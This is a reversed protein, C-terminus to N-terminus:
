PILVKSPAGQFMPWNLEGYGERRSEFSWLYGRSEDGANSGGVWVEIRGDRDSDAIVPSSAVTYQTRTPYLQQAGDANYIYVDWLMTFIVEPRGDLDIDAIVPAARVAGDDGLYNRPQVPWGAVVQGTHHWAYVSTAGPTGDNALTPHATPMVIELDGDGDLDAVAPSSATPYETAQPWGSQEPLKAPDDFARSSFLQNSQFVYMQPAPNGGGYQWWLMGSGVVIEQRGDGDLDAIVPSSSIEEPLARRVLARGDHSFVYLFGGTHGLQNRDAHAGVVVENRGDGNFDACAPTSRTEWQNDYEWMLHGNSTVAYIYGDLSGFLIELHGNADLDCLTPSSYIGDTYGSGWRDRTRFEWMM